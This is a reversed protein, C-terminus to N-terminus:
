MSGAHIQVHNEFNSYMAFTASCVKCKYTLNALKLTMKHADRVHALIRDGKRGCITCRGSDIHKDAKEQMNITVLGHSGLLHRELGQDTFFRWHCRQCCLPPRSTSQFKCHIKVEHAKLMHSTFELFSEIYIDCIECIRYSEKKGSKEKVADDQDILDIVIPSKRGSTENRVGSSSTQEQSPRRSTPAMIVNDASKVVFIGNTFTSQPRPHQLHTSRNDPNILSISNTSMLNQTIQHMQASTEASASSSRSQVNATFLSSLQDIGPFQKNKPMLNLAKTSVLLVNNRRNHSNVEIQHPNYSALRLEKLVTEYTLIDNRNILKSTVGAYSDMEGLVQVLDKDFTLECKKMHNTYKVKSNCEFDCYRCCHIPPSKEIRSRKGHVMYIHFIIQNSDRSKFNCWNCSYVSRNIKHPIEMHGDLISQFETRFRCHDCSLNRSIKYPQNYRKIEQLDSKLRDIKPLVHVMGRKSKSSLRKLNDRAVFEHVQNLGIGVLLDSVASSTYDPIALSTGQNGSMKKVLTDKIYTRTPMYRIPNTNSQSEKPDVIKIVQIDNDGDEEDTMPRESTSAEKENDDNKSETETPQPEQHPPWITHKKLMFPVVMSPVELIADTPLIEGLLKNKLPDKEDYYDVVGNPDIIVRQDARVIPVYPGFKFQTQGKTLGSM